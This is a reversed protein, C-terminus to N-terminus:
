DDEFLLMYISSLSFTSLANIPPLTTSGSLLENIRAFAGKSDGYSGQVPAFDAIVAGRGRAANVYYNNYFYDSAPEDYQSIVNEKGATGSFRESAKTTINSVINNENISGSPILILSAKNSNAQNASVAPRLVTNFRAIIGSSPTGNKPSSVSIGRISPAHILNNEFTLNTYTADDFFLGQFHQETGALAVNGIFRSNAVSGQGQVFDVHATPSSHINRAGFNNIFDINDISGLKYCDAAMWDCRNGKVISDEFNFFLYGSSKADQVDLNEIRTNRVAQKPYGQGVLESLGGNVQVGYLSTVQTYHPESRDFRNAGYIELNLAEVHHSGNFIGLGERGAVVIKLRDLRIFSSDIVSIGGFQAPSSPSASTITVYSTYNRGTISFTNSNLVNAAYVGSALRIVEGGTASDLAQDLEISNAVDIVDGSAANCIQSECFVAIVCVCKWISTRRFMSM